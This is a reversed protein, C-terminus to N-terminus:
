FAGRLYEIDASGARRPMVSVLGFRIEPPRVHSQTIWIAALRRLRERKAHGVAEAPTGFPTGRRTKVEAFVLCDGDRLIADIAGPSCRWNRDLLRMGQDVLYDVAVREGYKGVADKAKAMGDVIDRAGRHPSADSRSGHVALTCTSLRIGGAQSFVPGALMVFINERVPM